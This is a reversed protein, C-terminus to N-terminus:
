VMSVSRLRGGDKILENLGGLVGRLQDTSVSGRSSQINFQADIVNERVINVGGGGAAGAGGAAGGASGGGGMTTSKIQQLRMQGAAVASAAAAFGLAPGVLPISSLSNYSKQASEATSIITSAIAAAKGVEFMKRNESEMLVAMDGLIGGMISMKGKWSMEWMMANKEQARRDIGNLEDMLAQRKELEIKYAENEIEGLELYYEAWSNLEEVRQEDLVKNKEAEMEGLELYYEAWSNLEESHQQELIEKRRMVSEQYSDINASLPDDPGGFSPGSVGFDMGSQKPLLPTRDPRRMNTLSLEEKANLADEFLKTLESVAKADEPTIGVVSGLDKMKKEIEYLDVMTDIMREGVKEDWIKKLNFSVQQSDISAKEKKLDEFVKLLRQYEKALEELESVAKEGGLGKNLDEFLTNFAQTVENIAPATISILTGALKTFSDDMKDLNKKAGELAKRDLATFADLNKYVEMTTKRMINIAAQFGFYQLGLQRVSAGVASSMGSTSKTVKQAEVGFQKLVVKADNLEKRFQDHDAQIKVVIDDIKAM